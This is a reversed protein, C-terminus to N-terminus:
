ASGACSRRRAPIPSICPTSCLTAGCTPVGATPPERGGRACQSNRAPSRHLREDQEHRRPHARLQAAALRDHLQLLRVGHVARPHPGRAGGGACGAGRDSAGAAGHRLRGRGLLPGDRPRAAGMKECIRREERRLKENRVSERGFARVVRVGTLNEQVATSLRGGGRRRRPLAQLDSLLIRGSYGIIVPIFAVSVWTLKASMTFMWAIAAVVLVVTRFLELMQNTLFNRLVEVDSTCRQIIDGTQISVHWAYPLHQIHGYLEDRLRRLSRESCLAVAVRYLYTFAGALVAFV